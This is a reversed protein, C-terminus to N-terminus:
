AEDAGALHGSNFGQGTTGNFTFVEETPSEIWHLQAYVGGAKAARLFGLFLQAEEPTIASERVYIVFGAPFHPEFKVVADEPVVLAFIELLEPATGSSRNILIRARIQKRYVEDDTSVRPQKVIRGLLDLQAGVADDLNRELYLQWFADEVAQFRGTFVQTLALMLPKDRYQEPLKAVAAAAHDEEQTLVPTDGGFQIPIDYPFAM